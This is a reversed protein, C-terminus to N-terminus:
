LGFAEANYSIERSMSGNVLKVSDTANQGNAFVNMSHSGTKKIVGGIV